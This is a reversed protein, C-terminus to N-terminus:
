CVKKEKFINDLKFKIHQEEVVLKMAKNIVQEASKIIDQLNNVINAINDEEIDIGCIESIINIPELEMDVQNIYKFMINGYYKNSNIDYIKYSLKSTYLNDIHPNYYRGNSIVYKHKYTKCDSIKTEEYGINIAELQNRLKNWLNINKINNSVFDYFYKYMIDREKTTYKNRLKFNPINTITKGCEKTALTQTDKITLPIDIGLESVLADIKEQLLIM